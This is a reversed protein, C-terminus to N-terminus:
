LKKYKTAFKSYLHKTKPHNNEAYETINIRDGISYNALTFNYNLLYDECFFNNFQDQEISGQFNFTAAITSEITQWHAKNLAVDNNCDIYSKFWILLDMVQFALSFLLYPTKIIKRYEALNINNKLEPDVTHSAAGTIFLISVVSKSIIPNFHKKACKVNAYKTNEGALFLSSETLNVKGNDICADHLLGYKNAARFVSEVIIRIQTFYLQDDFNDFPQKISKLIQLLPKTADFGIYKETCVEFVSNYDHKTQADIQQDAEAKIAIWLQKLDEDNTKDYVINNKFVDAVRNIEKTFSKQGSLIFSPMKKIGSIRELSLFVKKLAEDKITILDDDNQGSREYFLGDILVADYLSINSELENIGDAANDYGILLISELLAGEKIIELEKFKDDFWIVRYKMMKTQIL